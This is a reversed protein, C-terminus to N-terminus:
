RDLLQLPFEALLPEILSMSEPGLGGAVGLGLCPWESLLRRLFPLLAAADLARGAGGSTDLLVRTVGGGYQHLQDVLREPDNGVQAFAAAGIQLVLELHDYEAHFLDLEVPDPWTMDLQVADLHPGCSDVADYLHDALGKSAEPRFDAYHLCNFVVPDRYSFIDALQEAKPWVASWKTPEGYLHKYSTMAGIHLRYSRPDDDLSRRHEMFTALLDSVFARDPVDTIGIYPQM